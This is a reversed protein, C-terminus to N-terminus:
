RMWMKPYYCRKLSDCEETKYLTYFLLDVIKCESSDLFPPGAIELLNELIINGIRFNCGIFDDFRAATAYWVPISLKCYRDESQIPPWCSAPFYLCHRGDITELELLRTESM